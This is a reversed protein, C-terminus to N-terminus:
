RRASWRRGECGPSRAHRAGMPPPMTQASSALQLRLVCALAGLRAACAGLLSPGWSGARAAVDAGLPCCGRWCRTRRPTPTRSLRDLGAEIEAASMLVPATPRHPRARRM